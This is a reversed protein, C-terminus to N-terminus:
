YLRPTTETWGVVPVEPTFLFLEVRRNKRQADATLNPIMAQHGGLGAVGIRADAVGLRKLEGAVALARATSLLFPDTPPAPQAAPPNAAVPPGDAHGVVMLRLDRAADGDIAKALEALAQRAEPKLEVAEPEFLIDAQLRAMGTQPDFRLSPYRQALQALGGSSSPPSPGRAAIMRIQQRFADLEQRYRALQRHDLARAEALLAAEEEARALREEAQRAHTKLDEVRAALAVNKEGLAESEARLGQYKSAPVFACGGSLVALALAALGLLSRDPRM